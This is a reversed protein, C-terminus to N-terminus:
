QLFPFPKRTQTENQQLSDKNGNSYKSANEVPGPLHSYRSSDPIQCFNIHDVCNFLKYFTAYAMLFSQFINNQAM